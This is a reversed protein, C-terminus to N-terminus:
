TVTGGGTSGHPSDTDSHQHEPPQNDNFMTDESDPPLAILAPNQLQANVLVSVEASKSTNVKKNSRAGANHDADPLAIEDNM